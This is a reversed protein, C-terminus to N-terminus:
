KTCCVIRGNSSKLRRSGKRSNSIRPLRGEKMATLSAEPDRLIDAMEALNAQELTMELATRRNRDKIHTDIGVSLLILVSDRHCHFTALHLATWGYMDQLNVQVSPHSLILRMVNIHGKEAAVHLATRAFKSRGNCDFGRNLMDRVATVNGTIAAQVIADDNAKKEKIADKQDQEAKAMAARLRAIEQADQDAKEVAARLM